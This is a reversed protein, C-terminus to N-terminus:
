LIYQTFAAQTTHITHANYLCKKTHIHFIYTHYLHPIYTIHPTYLYKYSMHAVYYTNKLNITNAACSSHTNQIHIVYTHKTQYRKNPTHTTHIYSIEPKTFTHHPCITYAHYTHNHYKYTM